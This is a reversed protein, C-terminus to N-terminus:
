RGCSWIAEKIKSEGFPAELLGRDENTLMNFPIGELSPM